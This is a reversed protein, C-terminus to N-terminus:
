RNSFESFRADVILKLKLDTKGKLNLIADFPEGKLKLATAFALKTKLGQNRLKIIENKFDFGAVKLIQEEVQFHAYATQMVSPTEQAFVEVPVDLLVFNAIYSDVGEVKCFRDKFGSVGGYLSHLKRQLDVLDPASLILDIDSTDSSINLPFTGAILPGYQSLNSLIDSEKIMSYITQNQELNIVSELSMQHFKIQVSDLKLKLEQNFDKKLGSLDFHLHPNEEILTQFPVPVIVEFHEFGEKYNNNPKPEPLEILDIIRDEYLIPENLKFTSILRGNVESEVLLKSFNSFDCKKQHYANKDIVRYCLHDISWNKISFNKIKMLNFVLDLFDKAQKYFSDANMTTM